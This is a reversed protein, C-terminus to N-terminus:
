RKLFENRSIKIQKLIVGLLELKIHRPHIPVVTRRGDKHKFIKHSGTQRLAVFGEKELFKCLKIPSVPVLKM